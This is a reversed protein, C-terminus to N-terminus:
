FSVNWFSHIVSANGSFLLDTRRGVGRGGRNIALLLVLEVIYGTFLSASRRRTIHLM